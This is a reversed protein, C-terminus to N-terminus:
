GIWAGNAAELPFLLREPRPIKGRRLLLRADDRAAAMLDVDAVYDGAVLPTGSIFGPRTDVSLGPPLGTARIRRPGCSGHYEVPVQYYQHTLADPLRAHMVTIEAPV